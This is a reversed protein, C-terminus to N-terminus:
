TSSKPSGCWRSASERLKREKGPVRTRGIVKRYRCSGLQSAQRGIPFQLGVFRPDLFSDQASRKNSAILPRVIRFILNSGHDCSSREHGCIATQLQVIPIRKTPANAAGFRILRSERKDLLITMIPPPM